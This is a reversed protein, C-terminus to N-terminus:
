GDVEQLMDVARQILEIDRRQLLRLPLLIRQLRLSDDLIGEQATNFLLRNGPVPQRAGAQFPSHGYLRAKKVALGSRKCLLQHGAGISLDSLLINYSPAAKYQMIRRSAKGARHVM